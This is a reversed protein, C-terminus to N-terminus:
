CCSDVFASLMSETRLELRACQSRLCEVAEDYRDLISRYAARLDSLSFEGGWVEAGCSFEQCALQVKPDVVIGVSPIGLIGGIVVGHYRASVLIKCKKLLSLYDSLGEVCGNWVHASFGSARLAAVCKRDKVGSFAFFEVPVGDERLGRAFELVKAFYGAGPLPYDFDRVVVGVPARDDRNLTIGSPLWYKSCYCIDAGVLPEALGWEKIIQASVEDRVSCFDATSVVGRSAAENGSYFPGVGIGLFATKGPLFFVKGLKRAVRIWFPDRASSAGPLSPYSYFQTGGAYVLLEPAFLFRRAGRLVGDVGPVFDLYDGRGSVGRANVFVSREPWRDKLFNTTAVLLLDDGFNSEGFAGEIQVKGVKASKM